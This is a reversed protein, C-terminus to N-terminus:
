ASASTVAGRPRNTLTLNQPPAGKTTFQIGTYFEGSLTVETDESTSLVKGKTQKFGLAASMTMTDYQVVHKASDGPQLMLFGGPLLTPTTDGLEFDKLEKKDAFRYSLSLIGAKEDYTAKGALKAKLSAPTIKPVASKSPATKSGGATTKLFEKLEKETAEAERDMRAKTYGGVATRYAAELVERAPNLTEQLNKPAGKPLEGRDEFAKREAKILDVLKKNGDKRAAEDRKDFWAGVAQRYEVGAVRYALKAADLKAKIADDLPSALLPTLAAFLVLFSSLRIM